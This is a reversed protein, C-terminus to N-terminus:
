QPAKVFIYKGPTGFTGAAPGGGAYIECGPNYVRYQFFEGGGKVRNKGSLVCDAYGKHLMRRINEGSAVTGCTSCRRKLNATMARGKFLTGFGLPLTGSTLSYVTNPINDIFTRFGLEPSQWIQLVNCDVVTTDRNMLKFEALETANFFGEPDEFDEVEYPERAGLAGDEIQIDDSSTPAPFGSVALSALVM